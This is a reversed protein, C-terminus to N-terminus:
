IKVDQLVATKWQALTLDTGGTTDILEVYLTALVASLQTPTLTFTIVGDSGDNGFAGSVTWEAASGDLATGGSFKYDSATKASIDQATGDVNRLTFSLTITDGKYLKIARGTQADLLDPIADACAM